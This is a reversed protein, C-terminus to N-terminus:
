IWPQKAGAHRITNTLTEAGITAILKHQQTKEPLQGNVHM